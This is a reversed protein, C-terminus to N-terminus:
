SKKKKGKLINKANKLVDALPVNYLEALKKLMDHRVGSYKVWRAILAIVTLALLEGDSKKGANSKLMNQWEGPEKKKRVLGFAKGMLSCGDTQAYSGLTYFYLTKWLDPPAVFRGNDDLMKGLLLNIVAQGALSNLAMEERHQKEYNDINSRTKNQQEQLLVKGTDKLAALAAKKEVLRRPKGHPDRTLILPVDANKLLKDWKAPKVGNAM